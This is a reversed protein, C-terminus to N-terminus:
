SELDLFESLLEPGVLAQGIQSCSQCSAVQSWFVHDETSEGFTLRFRHPAHKHISSSFARDEFDKSVPLDDAPVSDFFGTRQGTLVWCDVHGYGNGGGLLQSGVEVLGLDPKSRVLVPATDASATVAGRPYHIEPGQQRHHKQRHYNIRSEVLCYSPDDDCKIRVLNGPWQYM